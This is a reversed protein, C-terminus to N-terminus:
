SRLLFIILCRVTFVVTGCHWWTKQAPRDCDCLRSRILKHQAAFLSSNHQVLFYIFGICHQNGFFAVEISRLVVWVVM